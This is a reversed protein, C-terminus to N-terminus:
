ATEPFKTCQKSEVLERPVLGLQDSQMLWAHVTEYAKPFADGSAISIRAFVESIALSRLQVAQPWVTQIFPQARNMWYAGRQEGAGQLADLVTLASRRLGVGPLAAMAERKQPLTILDPAELVAYTLLGAYQEGHDGLADYHRAAALFPAKIQEILPRYLRPTWLFGKWVPTAEEASNAWDFL